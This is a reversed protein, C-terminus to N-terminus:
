WCAHDSSYERVHTTNIQPPNPDQGRYLRAPNRIRSRCVHGDRVFHTCQQICTDRKKKRKKKQNTINGKTKPVYRTHTAQDPTMYKLELTGPTM